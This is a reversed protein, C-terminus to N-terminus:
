HCCALLEVTFVEAPTCAGLCKMPTGNIRDETAQIQADAVLAFDTGKPWDERVRRNGNEVTGKEWSHYAHCFFVAADLSHAIEQHLANESGNDLTITYVLDHPYFGLVEIVAQKITKAKADPLRRLKSFRTKREKLHLVVYKSKRSVILDGEWHGVVKRANVELPRDDISVKPAAPVKPKHQKKGRRRRRSKGATKLYETLDPRLERIWQYIAEHSITAGKLDKAIRLSIIEPPWKLKLKGGVYNQIEESKLRTRSQNAETRRRKAKEDARHTKEIWDEGDNANRKLERSV